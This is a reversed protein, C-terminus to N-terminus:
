AALDQRSFIGFRSQNILITSDNLVTGNFTTTGAPLSIGSSSFNNVANFTAASSNFIISGAGTNTFSGTITGSNYTFLGRNTLNNITGGDLIVNTTASITGATHDLFGGAQVDISGASFVGGGILITGNGAFPSVLVANTFSATGGTQSFTGVAAGGGAVIMNGGSLSGSGSLFYNGQAGSGASGLTLTATAVLSGGSHTVTGASVGGVTTSQTSIAGGTLNYLGSSSPQNAVILGACSITGGSQQVTGAGADGVFLGTSFSASGTGSLLYTGAGGSNKGLSLVSLNISGGSQNLTGASSAGPDLEGAAAMSGGTMAYSANNGFVFQSFAPLFQQEIHRFLSSFFPCEDNGSEDSSRKRRKRLFSRWVISPQNKGTALSNSVVCAM